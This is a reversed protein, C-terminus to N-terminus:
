GSRKPGPRPQRSRAGGRWGRWHTAMASNSRAFRLEGFPPPAGVRVGITEGEGGFRVTVFYAEVTVYRGAFGLPSLVRRPDESRGSVSPNWRANRAPQRVPVFGSDQLSVLPTRAPSRCGCHRDAVSALVSNRLRHQPLGGRVQVSVAPLRRYDPRLALQTPRVQVVVQRRLNGARSDIRRAPCRSVAPHGAMSVHSEPPISSPFRNERQPERPRRRPVVPNPPPRRARADPATPRRPPARQRPPQSRPSPPSGRIHSIGTPPGRWRGCPPLGPV